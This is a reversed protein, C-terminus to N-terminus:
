TNHELAIRLLSGAQLVGNWLKNDLSDSKQCWLDSFLLEFGTCGHSIEKRRRYGLRMVMDSKKWDYQKDKKVNQFKKVKGPDKVKLGQM